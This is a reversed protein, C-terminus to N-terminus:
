FGVTLKINFERSVPYTFAGGSGVDLGPYKTFTLLNRANFAIAVNNLGFQSSIDSPLRYSLSLNALRLYDGKAYNASTHSSAWYDNGSSIFKPVDTVDGPAQWFSLYKRPRNTASIDLDSTYGYAVKEGDSGNNPANKYDDFVPIIHGTKFTWQTMFEINKYRLFMNFGGVIKPNTRGLYQMAAQMFEPQEGDDRIFATKGPISFSTGIGNQQYYEKKEQSLADWGDLFKGYARQAEETLYCEPNGSIRDVGAVKWGYVSGTEKGIVNIVGGQTVNGKMAEAYTDYTYKSKLIVNKNWSGNVSTTFTFDNNDVWKVNLYLEVGQNEISGGNARVQKRGTSTPIVLDELIDETRNYYYDATVNIRNRLFSVDLGLNRDLKREWSVGPNPYTFETIYRDGEYLQDGLSITGFPYATRDINGTYGYSGRIALESVVSNEFFSERHLNYRAGVSWLPTFRNGEGIADAGDARYNFNVVYRDKYAYRLSGLFSVTRDQGDSTSFMNGIVSRLDKYLVDEGFAPVGTIRYDAYYVPSTYGFNNYRKSTVENALLVSFEHDERINFAYNIQNRISWNFNKGSRETLEGNNFEQPLVDQNKFVQRAFAENVYSTYTDPSIEITETNYSIGKRVISEVSLGPIIDYHLDFTLTADLGDQLKKTENMERMINFTDYKYGSATQETYNAGLYSLDAAYNGNEDYPREYPNAFVAYNFPDIASAHDRSKRINTSLNLGLTLRQIPRYDLKVLMGANSYKNPLLIGQKDQFNVSTYYTMEDTGGRLSLNHSHSHATRFLTNFWDTNTHSLKDIQSQYQAPTLYGDYLQKYLNGGRGTKPAFGLGFNNMIATEYQLKEASNMFDLNMSPAIAVSYNGNYSFQTKSRFGKKTTIVIVGNAAKAGYIAAASADKLISISEIDEPMINGVGDQMITGAYDGTNNEPVGSMMPLGDVIWLPETRANLNNEGRITIKARTGPAGSLSTSNLGAVKGELIQDISTIGQTKLDKATIVSASGTMKEKKITEMGTVVVENLTTQEEEMVIMFTKNGSIKHTQTKMGVFSFVLELGEGEPVTLSFYGSVDSAVGLSTGKLAVTVGPLPNNKEDIIFGTVTQKKSQLSTAEKRKQLIIMKDKIIFDVNLKDLCTKLATEIDVNKLNLSVQQSADIEKANYIFDFQSQVKIENLVEKLNTNEFLLNLKGKQGSAGAPLITLGAILCFLALKAFGGMRGPFYNTIMKKKM